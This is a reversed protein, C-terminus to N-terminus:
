MSQLGGRLTISYITAIRTAGREWGKQVFLPKQSTTKAKSHSVTVSLQEKTSTFGNYTKIYSRAAPVTRSSTNGGPFWM